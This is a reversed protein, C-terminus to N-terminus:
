DIIISIKPLLFHEVQYVTSLLRSKFSNSANLM